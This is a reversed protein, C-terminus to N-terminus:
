CGENGVDKYDKCIHKHQFQLSPKIYKQRIWELNTFWHFIGTHKCDRTPVSPDGNGQIKWVVNWDRQAKDVMFGKSHMYAVGNEAM